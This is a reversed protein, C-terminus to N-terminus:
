KQMCKLMCNKEGVYGYPTFHQVLAIKVSEVCSVKRYLSECVFSPLNSTHKPLRLSFTDSQTSLSMYPCLSM